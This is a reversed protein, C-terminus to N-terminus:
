ENERKLKSIVHRKDRLDNKLQKNISQQESIWSRVNKIVNRGEHCLAERNQKTDVLEMMVSDAKYQYQENMDNFAAYLNQVEINLEENRKCLCDKEVTVKKLHNYSQDLQCNVSKLQSKLATM